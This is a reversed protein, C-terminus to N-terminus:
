KNLVGDFWDVPDLIELVKGTPYWWQVWPLLDSSRKFALLHLPVFDLMTKGGFVGTLMDGRSLGDTGQAMM